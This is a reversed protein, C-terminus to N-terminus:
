QRDIQISKVTLKLTVTTNGVRDCCLYVVSFLHPVLLEVLRNLFVLCDIFYFCSARDRKTLHRYYLGHNWVVADYEDAEKGLTRNFYCLM